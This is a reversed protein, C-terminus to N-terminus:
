RPQGCLGAAQGGRQQRRHSVPPERTLGSGRLSAGAGSPFCAEPEGDRVAQKGEKRQERDTQRWWAGRPPRDTDRESVGM